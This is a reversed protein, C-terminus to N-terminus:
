QFLDPHSSAMRERHQRSRHRALAYQISRVDRRFQLALENLTAGAEQREAILRDIITGDRPIRVTEGRFQACLRAADAEGIIEAFVWGPKFSNPIRWKTGGLREVLLAAAVPGVCEALLRFGDRGAM